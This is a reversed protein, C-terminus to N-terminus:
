PVGNPGGEPVISAHDILEISGSALSYLEVESGVELWTMLPVGEDDVKVWSGSNAVLVGTKPNRGIGPRHTHGFVFCAPSPRELQPLFLSIEDYNDKILSDRLPSKRLRKSRFLKGFFSIIRYYRLAKVVLEPAWPLDSMAGCFPINAMEIDHLTAKKRRKKIICRGLWFTRAWGFSSAYFDLHHGHTFVVEHGGLNRVIFPYSM